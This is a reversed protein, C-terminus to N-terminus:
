YVLDLFRKVLRKSRSRKGLELGLFISMESRTFFLKMLLLWLIAGLASGILPIVVTALETLLFLPVWINPNEPFRPLLNGPGFQDLLKYIVVPGGAVLLVLLTVAIVIPVNKKYM